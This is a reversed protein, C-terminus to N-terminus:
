LLVMSASVRDTKAIGALADANLIIFSNHSSFASAKAPMAFGSPAEADM